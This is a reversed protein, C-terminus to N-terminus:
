VMSSSSRVGGGHAPVSDSASASGRPPARDASGGVDAAGLANERISTSATYVASAAAAAPPDAATRTSISRRIPSVFVAKQLLPIAARKSPHTRSTRYLM